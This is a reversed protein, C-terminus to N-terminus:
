AAVPAPHNYLSGQDARQRRSGREPIPHRLPRHRHHIGASQAFAQLLQAADLGSNSWYALGAADPARGLVNTYLATVLTSSAPTTASAAYDTMFEASNAFITSLSALNAPNTAVQGVWYAVGLRIRFAASLPRINASSRISTIRRTPRPRSRRSRRRRRSLAPQLQANFSALESAPPARYQIAEYWADIESTYDTM